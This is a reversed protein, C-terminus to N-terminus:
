PFSGVTKLFNFGYSLTVALSGPVEPVSVSKNTKDLDRWEVHSYKLQRLSLCKKQRFLSLVFCLKLQLMKQRSVGSTGPSPCILVHRPLTGRGFGCFDLIWKPFCKWTFCQALGPVTVGFPFHREWWVTIEKCHGMQHCKSYNRQYECLQLTRRIHARLDANISCWSTSWM